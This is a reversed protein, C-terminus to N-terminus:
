TIKIIVMTLDDEGKTDQTFQRHEKFIANVMTEAKSSAYTRILAQLRQKGFMEGAKNHGEWIGDTGVIIV